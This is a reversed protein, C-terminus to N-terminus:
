RLRKGRLQELLSQVRRWKTQDREPLTKWFEVGVATTLSFVVSAAAAILVMLRRKPRHKKTPVQAYDVVQVNATERQEQILASEYQPYIFELLKGQVELLRLLELYKQSLEPVQKMALFLQGEQGALLRASKDALERSMRSYQLVLPHDQGLSNRLVDAKVDNMVKEAQVEAAAKVLATVQEPLSIVGYQEQFRKLSDQLFTLSDEMQRLRKGIYLRNNRATESTIDRYIRDLEQVCDNTIQAARQPSRDEVTIEIALDERTQVTYHSEFAALVDEPHADPDMKYVERLNHRQIIRDKLTRSTLITYYIDDSPVELGFTTAVGTLDRSLFQPLGSTGSPPLILATARFWVPLVLAVGAALATIALFNLVIFKRWRIVLAAFDLFNLRAVSDRESM